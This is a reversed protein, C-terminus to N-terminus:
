YKSKMRKFIDYPIQHQYPSNKTPKWTNMNLTYETGGGGVSKFNLLVPYGPSELISAVAYQREGDRHLIARQEEESLANWLDIGAYKAIEKVDELEVKIGLRYVRYPFKMCLVLGFGKYLCGSGRNM